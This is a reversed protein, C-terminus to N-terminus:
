YTELCFSEGILRGLVEVQVTYGANDDSMYVTGIDGQNCEDLFSGIAMASGISWAKAKISRTLAETNYFVAEPKKWTIM